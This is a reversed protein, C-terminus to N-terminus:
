FFIRVKKEIITEGECLSTNEFIFYARREM